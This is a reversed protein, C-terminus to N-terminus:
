ERKKIEIDYHYYQRAREAVIDKHRIYQPPNEPVEEM